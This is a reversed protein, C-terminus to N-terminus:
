VNALVVAGYHAKPLEGTRDFFRAAPARSRAVKLSEPSPDYGHVERFSRVLLATLGGIGCGFDLLPADFGTGLLRQLVDSKYAAFYSPPEGSAAVNGAHLAEYSGAYKDFDRSSSM